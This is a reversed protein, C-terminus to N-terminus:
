KSINRELRCFIYKYLNLHHTPWMPFRRKLKRHHSKLKSTTGAATALCGRLRSYTDYTFSYLYIFSLSIYARVDNSRWDFCLCYLDLLCVSLRLSGTRGASIGAAAPWVYSYLAIWTQPERTKKEKTKKRESQVLKVQPSLYLSLSLPNPFYTCTRLSIALLM